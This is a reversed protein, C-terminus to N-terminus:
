WVHWLFIWATTILNVRKLGECNSTCLFILLKYHSKYKHKGTYFNFASAVFHISTKKSYLHKLTVGQAYKSIFSRLVPIKTFNKRKSRQILRLVNDSRYFLAACNGWENCMKEWWSAMEIVEGQINFVDLRHPYSFSPLLLSLFLLSNRPLHEWESLIM